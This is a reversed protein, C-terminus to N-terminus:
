DIDTFAEALEEQQNTLLLGHGIILKFPREENVKSLCLAGHAYQSCENEPARRQTKFLVQISWLM